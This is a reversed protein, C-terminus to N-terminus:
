PENGATVRVYDVLMTQPFPTTEDPAGVFNGGVAVNLLIRFPHDFVWARGALLSPTITQYLTDDVFYRIREPEWQVAFVHFDDAFTGVDLTYSAHVAGGGSYGPGHASGLVTAPEQGRLEMIDIEGCAPWTTTEVDDGLLWFAPWLGQGRPLKMRAEFRGYAQAFTGKTSLRAATFSRGQFNERRAVIALNGQGDLAANDARDTAFELQANGFGTGTEFVWRDTDPLAGAAGDFTDEFTVEGPEPLPAECRAGLLSFLLVGLLLSPLLRQLRCARRRLLACRQGFLTQDSAGSTQAWLTVPAVPRSSRRM